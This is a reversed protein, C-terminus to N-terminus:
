ARWGAERLGARVGRFIHLGCIAWYVRPLARGDPRLRELVRALRDALALMWSTSLVRKVAKKAKLEAPDSRTIPANEVIMARRRESPRKSALYVTTLAGQEQREGFQRLTVRNDNHWLRIGRDYVFQVGADSARASLEQDESGAHPFGEDFGRLEAFLASTVSLNAATIGAPEVRDGALPKKEIGTKVWEEVEIRFRGFPTQELTTRVSPAFEWHGNVMCRGFDAQAALHREIHDPEVLMDDDLFILTEGTALQAGKNRATAVGSNEQPVYHLKAPFSRGIEEVVARTSDDPGDDVVVVEYRESPFQLDALATLTERLADARRFTPVIISVDV